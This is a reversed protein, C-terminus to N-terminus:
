KKKMTELIRDCQSSPLNLESAVNLLDFSKIGTKKLEKIYNKLLERAQDDDEIIIEVKEGCFPCYFTDFYSCAWFPEVTSDFPINEDYFRFFVQNAVDDYYYGAQNKEHIDTIDDIWQFKMNECCHTVLVEDKLVEILM